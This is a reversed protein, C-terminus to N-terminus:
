KLEIRILKFYVHEGTTLTVDESIVLEGKYKVEVIHRGPKVKLAHGTGQYQIAPGMFQGDVYLMEGLVADIIEISPAEGEEASETDTIPSVCGGLVMTLFIFPIFQKM